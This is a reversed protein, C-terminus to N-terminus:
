LRVWPSVPSSAVILVRCSQIVCQLVSCCVAVAVFVQIVSCCVAVAVFVQMVSCSCCPGPVCQLQLLYRCCVAVADFVQLVSCCVFTGECMILKPNCELLCGISIPRSERIFMQCSWILIQMLHAAKEFEFFFNHLDIRGPTHKHLSSM